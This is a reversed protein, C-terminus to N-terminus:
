AFCHVQPRSLPTGADSVSLKSGLRAAVYELNAIRRMLSSDNIAEPRFYRRMAPFELDVVRSMYERSLLGGHEDSLPRLRRQLAYSKQRLRPPRARTSWESFRHKLSPPAAFDHGYASPQRALEPDIRNLLMAEFRGANKLELPLAVGAEVVRHDLFPMLYAGYRGELSIEKGFLSRCRVRPYVQEVLTRPLRSRVGTRGLAALIKDEIARMFDGGHFEATVDSASYRAFFSRALDAATIPRDPLFFFNRYIEGCGGSASMAGGAHRADRAAANAGNEFLAGFNPLADYQDFNRRVQEAFEDPPVHRYNGKDLWDVSFGLTEGVRRAIRVDPDNESGYVYVNPQAGEARLAALALRSDLGGSLPCHAHDGFQSAFPRVITALRERHLEIRDALAMRSEAEPLPKAVSHSTAGGMGLEVVKDPGLMKIQSFITDSGIPVVNFAFEYVGQTDLSLRPLARAAGLFSTSFLRLDEDHFLQFAAFYDTFLYTRGRRHVLAVFQGGIRSWDPQELGPMDLLAELAQEGMKGDCVFTGAVAVMDEGRVLLSQPGGIIHPAHLLHWGPLRRETAKSFGHRGFQARAEGLALEAFEPNESRVLFLASM